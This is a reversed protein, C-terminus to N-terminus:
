NEAHFLARMMDSSSIIGALRREEDIVLVHRKDGQRFLPMMKDLLTDTGTSVYDERM